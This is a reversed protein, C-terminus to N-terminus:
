HDKTISTNVITLTPVRCLPILSIYCALKNDWDSDFPSHTLDLPFLVGACHVQRHFNTICSALNTMCLIENLFFSHAYPGATRLAAHLQFNRGASTRTKKHLIEQM